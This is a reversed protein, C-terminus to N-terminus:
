RAVKRTLAVAILVIALLVLLQRGLNEPEPVASADGEAYCFAVEPDTRLRSAPEEVWIRYAVRWDYYSQGHMEWNVAALGNLRPLTVFYPLGAHLPTYGDFVWSAWGEADPQVLTSDTVRMEGGSSMLTMPLSVGEAVYAFSIDVRSLSGSVSPVFPVYFRDGVYPNAGIMESPDHFGGPEVSDALVPVTLVLTVLLANM